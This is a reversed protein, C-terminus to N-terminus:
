NSKYEGELKTHAFYMLKSVLTFFLDPALGKTFIDALQLLSPVFKIVLFRSQVLYRIFHYDIKIHKTRAHIVHNCALSSASLNDCLLTYVGSSCIGLEKLLYSIWLLESSTNALCKYEAEASSRSVTPQKKSTWSILSSGLFVAYGSTSRRSDPCGAWDSDSYSTVSTIDSSGLTIGTGLSEKLYRLIRKVILHETTRQHVFQSIYSVAFAIDPRTMTLYQLGGVLSRYHNVMMCPADLVKLLQLLALSVIEIGLFYHLSGLDKMKFEPSLSSILSNLLMGSSGTLIIDDVYLLLYM